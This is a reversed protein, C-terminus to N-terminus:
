AVVTFVVPRPEDRLRAQFTAIRAQGSSLQVWGDPGSRTLTVDGAASWGAERLCELAGWVRTAAVPLPEGQETHIREALAFGEAGLLVEWEGALRPHVARADCSVRQPGLVAIMLGADHAASVNLGEEAVEPKGDRRHWVLAPRGLMRTVAARIQGLRSDADGAEPEVVCSLRHPLISALKREIHPGLLAPVWPKAAEHEHVTVLRLGEWRELLAGSAAHIDLDYTYTGAHRRREAAYLLVQGTDGALGDAGFSGAPYIREVSVPRLTATPVCGQIADVFAHRIAPDGLLSEALWGGDASTSIEAVCSTAGLKRYGVLRNLRRGRFAIDRYLDTSPDLPVRSADTVPRRAGTRPPGGAPYRLTARVHDAEPDGDRVAVEVRDGESVAAVSITAPSGAPVVVPRLFEVNEFAPVCRSSTLLAATQAMAELALVAPLVQDRSLPHDPLYLDSDAVLRRGPIHARLKSVLRGRAAEPASKDRSRVAAAEGGVYSNRVSIDHM